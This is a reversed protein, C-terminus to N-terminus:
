IDVSYFPSSPWMFGMVDQGSAAYVTVPCAGANVAALGTIGAGIIAVLKISSIM